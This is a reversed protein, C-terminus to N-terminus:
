YVAIGNNYCSSVEMGEKIDDPRLVYLACGRPDDQIYFSFGTYVSIINHIRKVAGTERDIAKALRKGTITSHWYPVKSEEDRQIVGNCEHVFWTRLVLSARRLAITDEHKIGAKVLSDIASLDIKKAM